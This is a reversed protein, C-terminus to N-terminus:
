FKKIDKVLEDFEGKKAQQTTVLEKLKDFETLFVKKAKVVTEVQKEIEQNTTKNEVEALKRLAAEVPNKSQQEPKKQEETTM